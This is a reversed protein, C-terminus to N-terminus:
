FVRFFVLLDEVPCFCLFISADWAEADPLVIWILHTLQSGSVIALNSICGWSTGASVEDLVLGSKVIHVDARLTGYHQTLVFGATRIPQVACVSV